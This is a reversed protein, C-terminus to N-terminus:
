CSFMGLHDQTICLEECEARNNFRNNNGLCGGYVFPECSKTFKDYTWMPYNGQCSTQAKPLHCSDLIYLYM